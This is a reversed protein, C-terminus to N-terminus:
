GGLDLIDNGAETDRQAPVHLGKKFFISHETDFDPRGWFVPYGMFTWFM